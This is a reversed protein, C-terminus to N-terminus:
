CPDADDGAGHLEHRRIGEVAWPEWLHTPPLWFWGGRSDGVLKATGRAAFAATLLCVLAARKEHDQEAAFLKWFTGPLRLEQKLKAVLKKNDVVQQYLLDFRKGRKPNVTSSFAEEPLLVALFANPFAEVVPGRPTIAARTPSGDSDDLLQRFQSCTESAARRLQLGYGSDSLGPKCRRAFPKRIFMVECTRRILPDSTAPVLPGDIAIVDPRFGEAILAKREEWSTGAKWVDVTSGDIYAVGTTKRTKSFGVDVGLLRM